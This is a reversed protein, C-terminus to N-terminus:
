RLERKFVMRRKLSVANVPNEASRLKIFAALAALSVASGGVITLLRRTKHGPIGGTQASGSSFRVSRGVAVGVGSRQTILAGSKVTLRAVAGAM